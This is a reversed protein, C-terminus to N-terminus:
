VFWEIIAIEEDTLKYLDFVLRNIPEDLSSCFREFFQKDKDTNSAALKKKELNEYIFKVLIDSKIYHIQSLHHFTM